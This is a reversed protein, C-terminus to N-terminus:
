SNSKCKQLSTKKILEQKQECSRSLDELNKQFNDRTNIPSILNKNIAMKEMIKFESLLVRYSSEIKHIAEIKDQLQTCDITDLNKNVSNLQNNWKSISDLVDSQKTILPHTSTYQDIVPPIRTNDPPIPPGKVGCSVFFLLFYYPKFNM